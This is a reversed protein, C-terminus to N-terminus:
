NQSEITFEMSIIVSMESHHKNPPHFIPPNREFGGIRCDALIFERGFNGALPIVNHM